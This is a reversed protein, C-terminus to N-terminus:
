DLLRKTMRYNHLVVDGLAVERRHDVVFGQRTFFRRAPESAEVYLTQVGLMRAHAELAAYLAATVGTGAVAPDCYLHDIHGDAELDGYAVASDRDDVAVLTFRGDSARAVFRAPDVPAPSWAALQAQAYDGAALGHVAAHFLGALRPADAARFPRVAVGPM